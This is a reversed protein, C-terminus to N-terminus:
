RGGGGKFDPASIRETTIEAARTIGTRLLAPAEIARVTPAKRRSM